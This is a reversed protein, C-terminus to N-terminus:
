CKRTRLTSTSPRGPARFCWTTAPPWLPRPREWPGRRRTAGCAGDPRRRPGDDRPVGNQGILKSRPPIVAEGFGPSDISSHRPWRTQDRRPVSPSISTPRLGRRQRHMAVCWWCTVQPLRRDRSHNRARATKSPSAPSVLTTKSILKTERSALMPRPRDCGCGICVTTSGTNSSLRAHTDFVGDNHTKCYETFVKRTTQTPEFGYVKLSAEVVKWGGKPMIARKLPAETQLGVILELDKDIYGPAHALISSPEQSILRRPCGERTGACASAPAEGM